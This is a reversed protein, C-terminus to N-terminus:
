KANAAANWSFVSNAGIKGDKMSSLQGSVAKFHVQFSESMDTADGSASTSFSSIYAETLKLTIGDQPTSGDNPFTIALTAEAFKQRMICAKVIDASSPDSKRACQINYVAVSATAAPSGSHVDISNAVGWSFSGIEIANRKAESKGELGPLTLFINGAM